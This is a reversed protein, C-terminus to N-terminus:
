LVGMRKLKRTDLITSIRKKGQMLYCPLHACLSTIILRKGHKFGCCCGGIVVKPEGCSLIIRKECIYCSGKLKQCADEETKTLM